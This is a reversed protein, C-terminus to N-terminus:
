SPRERGPSGEVSLPAEAEEARSVADAVNKPLAGWVGRYIYDATVGYRDCFRTIFYESPYSDGRLWNNLRAPSVKLERALAAQNPSVAEIALRLRKAVDAKHMAAGMDPKKVMGSVICSEHLVDIFCVQM